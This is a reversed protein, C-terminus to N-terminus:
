GTLYAELLSVTGAVDSMDIMEFATHTYRTPVAILAAPTAMDILAIGDSGYHAFAADQVQVGADRAANFLRGTVARDYTAMGDKHVLMPGAGLRGPFRVGGIGTGPIDGVLGIELGIAEDFQQTNGLASAGHLGGEEQVTVAFWLECTLQSPDVDKILADMVCLGVRDDVACSVFREGLLRPRPEFVVASGIFIGAESVDSRSTAGIDVWFGAWSLPERAKKSDRSGHGSAAAIVGPCWTGDRRQVIVPQGVQWRQEPSEGRAGQATDLMLLGDDTVSFVVYGVQDAHSHVLVRRGAGGIRFVLNGVRDTQGTAGWADALSAIFEHEYGSPASISCLESLRQALRQQDVVVDRRPM